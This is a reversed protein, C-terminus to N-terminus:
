GRSCPRDCNKRTLDKAVVNKCSQRNYSWSTNVGSRGPGKFRRSALRSSYVGRVSNGTNGSQGDWSLNPLLETRPSPSDYRSIPVNLRGELRFEDITTRANTVSAMM